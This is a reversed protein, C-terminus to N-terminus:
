HREFGGSTQSVVAKAKSAHEGDRSGRATLAAIAQAGRRQEVRGDFVSWNSVQRYLEEARGGQRLSCSSTSLQSRSVRGAAWSSRSGESSTSLLSSTCSKFTSSSRLRLRSVLGAAGLSTGGACPPLVPVAALLPLLSLLDSLQARM